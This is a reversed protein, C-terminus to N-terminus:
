KDSKTCQDRELGMVEMGNKYLTLVGQYLWTRGMVLDNGDAPDTFHWQEGRHQSPWPRGGGTDTGAGGGGFLSPLTPGACGWGPLSCNGGSGTDYLLLPVSGLFLLQLVHLEDHLFPLFTIQIIRVVLCTLLHQNTYVEEKTYTPFPLYFFFYKSWLQHPSPSPMLSIHLPLPVGQSSNDEDRNEHSIQHM